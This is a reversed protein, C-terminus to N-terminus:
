NQPVSYGELRGSYKDLDTSYKNYFIVAPIAAILGLATAFLAEAIGPAVVTLSTNQSAAIARFANMIGWVTGFLGIFVSASGVTALVSMGREAKAMERNVVLNMVSDIRQQSSVSVADTRPMTKSEEYERMAAAFVRAMPDRTDGALGTSLEDLTKGSWFTDEFATARRKLLFMTIAKDVAIGWSWFSAAVLIIMVAKVVWDARQFLSWFSFDGNVIPELNASQIVLEILFM